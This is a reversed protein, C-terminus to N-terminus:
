RKKTGTLYLTARAKCTDRSIMEESVLVGNEWRQLYTENIYGDRAKRLLYPEEDRYTVYQHQTDEQYEPELPAMLTEVTETRLTYKVGDGLSPGYIRVVCQYQNRKVTEVRAMIYIKSNTNNKFSFDIKRDNSYYVTADQGFTTYSVKDSHSTRNVIKLNAQLAALYVTTSAQCVGGGWGWANLGNAYEIALQFGNEMTRAGVLKNFSITEGPNVELGHYKALAVRINDTRATTSDESVPTIAEGILTINKRIDAETVKPAIAQPQLEVNGSTGNALMQLIQERVPATDLYSGYTEPQVGFPEEWSQPYFYVLRADSAERAFYTKLQSLINDLQATDANTQTTYVYYANERFYDLDKKKDELSGTHGYTYADQLLSYVQAIDTTIGLTEYNLTAFTHGQYTIGVSWSNQRENVAAVVKDIANQPSLGGVSVGDVYINPLFVYEVSAVEDVLAQYEQKKINNKNVVVGIVVAAAILVLAFPIISMKKKQKQPPQQQQMYPPPYGPTYM